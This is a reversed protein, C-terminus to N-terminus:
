ADFGSFSSPAGCRRANSCSRGTPTFRCLPTLHLLLLPAAVLRIVQMVVSFSFHLLLLLMVKQM